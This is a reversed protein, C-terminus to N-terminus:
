KWLNEKWERLSEWEWEVGDDDCEDNEENKGV